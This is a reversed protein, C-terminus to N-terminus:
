VANKQFTYIQNCKCNRSPTRTQQSPTQQSGSRTRRSPTIPDRPQSSSEENRARKSPTGNNDNPTSM